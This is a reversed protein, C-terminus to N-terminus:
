EKPADQVIEEIKQLEENSLRLDVAGLHEKVQEESKAGVLVTTVTEQRLVWAIALQVLSIGRDNAISNLREAISLYNAFLEGQFREFGSREDDEPFIHGPRYRGTLLGKALPSHALIGIGMERCLPLEAKEIDRGFLNYRPQSSEFPAVEYATQLQDANFNSVGIYRTKGEEKLRAMAEMTEEIPYAPNWGHVQYLDVSDVKLMRLSNEMASQIDGRSYQGSM